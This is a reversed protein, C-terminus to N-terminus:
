FDEVPSRFRQEGPIWSCESWLMGYSLEDSGDPYACRKVGERKFGLRELVEISPRNASRVAASVRRVGVECFPYEFARRIAAKTIARRDEIYLSLSCDGLKFDDFFVAAALQGDKLVGLARYDSNLFKFSWYRNRVWQLIIERPVSVYTIM